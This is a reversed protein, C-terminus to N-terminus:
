QSKPRKLKDALEDLADALIKSLSDDTTVYGLEEDSPRKAQSMAAEATARRAREKAANAERLQRELEALRAEIIPDSSAESSARARTQSGRRGDMPAGADARLRRIQGYAEQVEEFRRASQASGQNHDPHHFQVLRRYAARVEEDSADPRVGLVNYPDPAAM